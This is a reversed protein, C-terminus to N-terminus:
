TPGAVRGGSRNSCSADQQFVALHEHNGMLVGHHLAVRHTKAALALCYLYAHHVEPESPVWLMKRLVTRRGIAYTRAGFIPLPATM